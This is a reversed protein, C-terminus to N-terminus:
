VNNKKYMQCLLNEFSLAVFNYKSTSAIEEKPWHYAHCLYHDILLFNYHISYMSLVARIYLMYSGGSIYMM